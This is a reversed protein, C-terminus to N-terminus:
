LEVMAEIPLVGETLADELQLASATWGRSETAKILSVLQTHTDDDAYLVNLDPGEQLYEGNEGIFNFVGKRKFHVPLRKVTGDPLVGLRHTYKCHCEESSASPDARKSSGECNRLIHTAAGDKFVGPYTRAIAVAERLSAIDTIFPFAATGNGLVEYHIQGKRHSAKNM